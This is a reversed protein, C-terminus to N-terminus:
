RKPSPSMREVVVRQVGPLHAAQQAFNFIEDGTAPKCWLHVVGQQVEFRIGQFGEYSRRLNELVSALPQPSLQKPDPAPEFGSVSKTIGFSIEIAPM